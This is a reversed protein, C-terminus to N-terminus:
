AKVRLYNRKEVKKKVSLIQSIINFKARQINVYKALGTRACLKKLEGRDMAELDAEALGYVEDSVDYMYFPDHEELKLRSDKKGYEIFGLALEGDIVAPNGDLYVEVADDEIEYIKGNGLNKILRSM